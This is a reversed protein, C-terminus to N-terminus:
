RDSLERLFGHLGCSFTLMLRFFLSRRSRIFQEVLVFLSVYCVSTGIMKICALYPSNVETTHGYLTRVGHLIWSYPQIMNDGSRSQMSPPQILLTVVNSDDSDVMLLLLIILTVEASGIGHSPFAAWWLCCRGLRHSSGLAQSGTVPENCVSPVTWINSRIYDGNRGAGFVEPTPDTRRFFTIHKQVSGGVEAVAGNPSLSWRRCLHDHPESATYDGNICNASVSVCNMDQKTSVDRRPSKPQHFTLNNQKASVSDTRLSSCKEEVCEAFVERRPLRRRRFAVDYLEGATYDM